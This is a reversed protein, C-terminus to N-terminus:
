NSWLVALGKNHRLDINKIRQIDKGYSVLFRSLKKLRQEHDRAGVKVVGGRGLLAEVSGAQSIKYEVIDLGYSSSLKSLTVITEDVATNEGKGMNKLTVDGSILPVEYDLDVGDVLKGGSFLLKGDKMRALPKAKSLDIMLINDGNLVKKSVLAENVWPIKQLNVQMDPLSAGGTLALNVALLENPSLETNIYVEDLNNDFPENQMLAMFFWLIFVLLAGLVLLVQAVVLPYSMNQGTSGKDDIRSSDDKDANRMTNIISALGSPQSDSPNGIAANEKPHALSFNQGQYSM